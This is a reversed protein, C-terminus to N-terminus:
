PAGPIENDPETPPPCPETDRHEMADNHARYAAVVVSLPSGPPPLIARGLNRALADNSSRLATAAQQIPTM